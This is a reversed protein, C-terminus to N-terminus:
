TRTALVIDRQAWKHSLTRVVGVYFEYRRAVTYYGRYRNTQGAVISYLWHWLSKFNVSVYKIKGCFVYNCYCSVLKFPNRSILAQPFHCGVSLVTNPKYWAIKTEFQLEKSENFRSINKISYFQFVKQRCQQAWLAYRLFLLINLISCVTQFGGRNKAFKTASLRKRGWLNM